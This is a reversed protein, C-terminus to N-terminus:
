GLDWREPNLNYTRAVMTGYQTRLWAEDFPTDRYRWYPEKMTAALPVVRLHKDLAPWLGTPGRSGIAFIIHQARATFARQDEDVTSRVVVAWHEGDLTTFAYWPLAM